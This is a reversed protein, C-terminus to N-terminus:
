EEPVLRESPTKTDRATQFIRDLIQLVECERFGFESVEARKRSRVPPREELWIKKGVKPVKFPLAARM